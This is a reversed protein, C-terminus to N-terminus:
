VKAGASTNNHAKLWERQREDAIKKGEAVMDRVQQELEGMFREYTMNKTGKEIQSLQFEWLATTEPQTLEAPLKKVVMRGKDTSIIKTGKKIVYNVELLREIIAARTAPTGLGNSQSLIKKLVPDTVTSAVSQMAELLSAQTYPKPATTKGTTVDFAIGRVEDDKSVEPLKQQPEKANSEDEVVKFIGKWGAAREVNGKAVFRESECEIEIVSADYEYDPAFQMMFRDRVLKYIAKEQASLISWDFKNPVAKPMIAHHDSKAVQVDNWARGKKSLNLKAVVESMTPDMAVITAMISPVDEFQSETLYRSDGRPYSILKHKEYLVQACDLVQKVSIKLLESAEKQLELLDHPLPAATAKAETSAEVIQGVQNRCKDAVAQLLKEDTCHGEADRKADPIKYSTKIAGNSHEFVGTLNFFSKAKFNEIALDRRVILALTPTQVRGVSIPGEKSKPEKSGYAATFVRSCNMGVLWDARQRALGAMYLGQKKEGPMINKLGDRISKDDLAQIWLRSLKKRGYDFNSYTLLSRGILEGERGADTALVVEDCRNILGRIANMQKDFGKAVKFKWKDPFLPLPELNWFKNLEEVYEEPKASELIHGVAWTVCDNGHEYYFGMNRPLQGFLVRAIDKAQGPKECIFLRM